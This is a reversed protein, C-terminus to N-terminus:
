DLTGLCCEFLHEGRRKSAVLGGHYETGREVSGLDVLVRQNMQGQGAEIPMTQYGTRGASAFRSSELQEGLL